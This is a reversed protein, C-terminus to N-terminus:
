LNEEQKFLKYVDETMIIDQVCYHVMQKDMGKLLRKYRWHRFHYYILGILLDVLRKM